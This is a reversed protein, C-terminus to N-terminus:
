EEEYDEFDTIQLIGRLTWQYKCDSCYAYMGKIDGPAWEVTDIYKGNELPYCIMAEANEQIEGPQKGCKPCKLDSLKRRKRM